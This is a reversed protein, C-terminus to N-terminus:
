LLILLSLLLSRVTQVSSVVQLQNNLELPPLQQLVSLQVLHLPLESAVQSVRHSSLPSVTLKSIATSAFSLRPPLLLVCWLDLSSSHKRRRLHLEASTSRATRLTYSPCSRIRYARSVFSHSSYLILRSAFPLQSPSVEEEESVEQRLEEEL